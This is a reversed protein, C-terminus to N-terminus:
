LICAFIGILICLLNTFSYVANSSNSDGPTEQPKGDTQLTKPQNDLKNLEKTEVQDNNITQAVVVSAETITNTVHKLRNPLYIRFLYVYNRIGLSWLNILTNRNILIISKNYGFLSWESM